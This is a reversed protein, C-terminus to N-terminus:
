PTEYRTLCTKPKDTSMGMHFATVRTPNEGLATLPLAQDVERPDYGRGNIYVGSLCDASLEIGKVGNTIPGSVGGKFAGAYRQIAHGYEHALVITAGMDGHPQSMLETMRPESYVVIGDYSDGCMAATAGPFTDTDCTPADPDAVLTVGTEIESSSEEWFSQIDAFIATPSSLPQAAAPAATTATTSPAAVPTTTTTPAHPDRVATGVTTCGTLILAATVATLTHKM